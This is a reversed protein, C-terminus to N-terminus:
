SREVIFNEIIAKYVHKMDITNMCDTKECQERTCDTCDGPPTFVLYKETYPRWRKPSCVLIKPFFGVVPIGLAAAIHLPGTSNSVFLRSQSILATLENVSLKGALNLTKGKIELKRCLNVEKESGTLIIGIGNIQTLYDTLEAFKEIPLDVASGGSGPHIIVFGTSSEPLEHALIKEVRERASTEIQLAYQVIKENFPEKIGLPALLSYNYEAEHKEATKRHEFIRDSFLFSYWRYGTGVRMRIDSFYLISAIRFDPSVALACDFKKQRLQEVNKRFLVKGNVEKLVIVEDIHPHGSLLPETYKRVLFTVRAHPYKKKIAAALPLTLILDGLRDTRVVLINKKEATM